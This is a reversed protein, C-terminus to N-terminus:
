KTPPKMVAKAPQALVEQKTKMQPVPAPRLYIAQVMGAQVPVMRSQSAWRGNEIWATRVTYGYKRGPTLQPSQFYRTRGTSQTRTGEVWFVAHEPLYAILLASRPRAASLAPSLATAELAYKTPAVLSVDQPMGLPEDYDEFGAQNWPLKTPSLYYSHM